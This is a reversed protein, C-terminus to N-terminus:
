LLVGLFVERWNEKLGLVKPRGEEIGKADFFERKPNPLNM